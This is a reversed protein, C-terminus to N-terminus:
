QQVKKWDALFKEIGIDTLPHKLLLDLVKYPITAIDAGALAAEVVHLPHRISAAIVETEIGYNDYISIIDRIVDMGYESVDDLRGIFPSVYTAGAKAALLAQNASFTLTVNTNVGERSLRKVAKLGEDSLPIKVVINRHTKSLKRAEEVIENEKACVAEVNVPGDVLRCIEAILEDAPRNEKCILTPNTTVGDIIHAVKRLEDLNATDAFIKM